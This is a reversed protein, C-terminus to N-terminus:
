RGQCEVSPTISGERVVERVPEERFAWDKMAIALGSATEMMNFTTSVGRRLKSRRNRVQLRRRPTKILTKLTCGERVRLRAAVTTIDVTGATSMKGVEKIATVQAEEMGSRLVRNRSSLGLIGTGLATIRTNESCKRGRRLIRRAATVGRSSDARTGVTTFGFHQVLIERRALTITARLATTGHTDGLRSMSKLSATLSYSVIDM